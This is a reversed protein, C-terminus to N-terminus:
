FTYRGSFNFYRGYNNHLGAAYGVAPQNPDYPAKTDFINQININLSLNKIGTFTYGMNVTTWSNVACNPHYAEYLAITTNRDPAADTAQKVGYYCFPQAYYVPVATGTNSGDLVRLLSIPGVYNVSMNVNHVGYTWNTSISGKWKPNDIGSNLQWDYIGARAGAVNYESNGTKEAIKYSQTYTAKLASSLNGWQGLNNRLKFEFDFGKVETAGRNYWPEKISLLPGTGPIPKGSADTIFNVPNTDRVVNGPNTDEFKLADNASGLAVEGEKRIKYWDVLIDFNTMPQFILGLSSSKSKEPQLDPNAGGSGSASKSCDATTAGPKPTAQDAECRKPDWIGSLFFQAGGPTVQSLAPARFGKAYSGRFALMDTAAWKAGVKPVFNTKITPYKDVRGAFDMEFTNTFPTRLEVFASKVNRQGDIITNALGYIDGRAVLADPDLKIKEQRVEAGVALGMAGGGLKGFETTAKADWQLIQSYGDTVVDHAITPDAALAALSTGTNLKRLTPLYLRGYSTEEKKDRSFLVGSEWDWAAATGKVGVLVRSTDNVTKSGGRLNEFRYGVSARADKFPNDPHGIELIAQFPVGVGAQTFNTVSTQGLTIPAGTYARESRTYAVETFLTANQGLKLNGRSLMSADNGAGTGELFQDANYNCFTRGTLVSTALIGDKIGGTIQQSAPCSTDFILRTPATAVTVGFNKSGPASERYFAPHASISSSYDSRFRGNLTVYEDYEIDTVDRRAVRACKSLDGAIFFNYGDKDLDGKGWFGNVGRRGFRNDDNAGARASIEGGEYNNKTIFNIVGGIADSGYVASAGDKLIEVRELASIPISNLDFLTSNGNNPDAYAAPTMRRGNILILTSTSSLGRLSATAVGRAFGSGGEFDRNTDTGMSPVQKMLEAVTTAGSDRIDKLTIIDVPSPGEKDARKLNSGTILVKQVPETAMTQANVVHSAALTLAVAIVSQKLVLNPKM